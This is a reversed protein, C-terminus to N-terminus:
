QRQQLKPLIFIGMIFTFNMMGLAPFTMLPFPGENGGNARVILWGALVMMNALIMGITALIKTKPSWNM